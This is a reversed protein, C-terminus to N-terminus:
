VKFKRAYSLLAYCQSKCLADAKLPAQNPHTMTLANAFLLIQLKPEM